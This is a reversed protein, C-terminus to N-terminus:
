PTSLQSARNWRISADRGFGFGRKIRRGSVNRNYRYTQQWECVSPLKSAQAQGATRHAHGAPTELWPISRCRHLCHHIMRRDNMHRHERATSVGILEVRDMSVREDRGPWTVGLDLLHRSCDASLSDNVLQDDSEGMGNLHREPEGADCGSTALHLYWEHNHHCEFTVLDGGLVDIPILRGQQGLDPCEVRGIKRDGARDLRVCPPSPSSVTFSNSLGFPQALGAFCDCLKTLSRDM